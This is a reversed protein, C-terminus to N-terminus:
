LVHYGLLEKRKTRCRIRSCSGLLEGLPFILASPKPQYCRQPFQLPTISRVCKLMHTLEAVKPRRKKQRFFLQLDTHEDLCLNSAFFIPGYARNFYSATNHRTASVLM